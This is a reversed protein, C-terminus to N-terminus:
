GKVMDCKDCDDMRASIGDCLHLMWAMRSKPAVPSGWERRGHHALIAHLVEDRENDPLIKASAEMWVIGSRSIHHINRKHESSGIVETGDEKTEFTYDWMKGCDHFLAALFLLSPKCTKDDKFRSQNYYDNNKLCLDVVEFTHEALGGKRHHHQFPKSSGSWVPFRNDELVIKSIDYIKHNYLSAMESLKSTFAEGNM